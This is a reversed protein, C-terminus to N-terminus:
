RTIRSCVSNLSKTSLLSILDRRIPFTNPTPIINRLLFGHTQPLSPRHFVHNKRDKLAHLCETGQTPLAAKASEKSLNHSNSQFWLKSGCLDSVVFAILPSEVPCWLGDYSLTVGVGLNLKSLRGPKVCKPPIQTAELYVQVLYASYSQNISRGPLCVVFM